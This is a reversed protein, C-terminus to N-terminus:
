DELNEGGTEEISVAPIPERAGTARFQGTQLFRVTGDLTQSSRCLLSHITKVALFDAAGPLRTCAVSVTGDDDGPILPNYGQPADRFGAIVGFEGSPSPLKAGAGNPGTVLEQGAPGAVLRYAWNRHLTTALDAGLNPVGILVTRRIRPDGYEGLYTRTVLGGMSFGVLHIAEIGDLARIVHHLYSASDALSIRTSPYNFNIVSFGAQELHQQLARMSKDSRGLGHLLIVASGSMTPLNREARIEALAEQCEELTGWAQRYDHPDLLRYHGSYVHRQIHWGQFFQVDGWFQMGGLTRTRLNPKMEDDEQAVPEQAVPAQGAPLSASRSDPADAQVLVSGALALGLWARGIQLAIWERPFRPHM